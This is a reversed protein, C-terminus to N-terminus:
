ALPTYMRSAPSPVQGNNEQLYLLETKFEVGWGTVTVTMRMGYDFLCQTYVTYATCTRHM